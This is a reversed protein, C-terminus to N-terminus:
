NIMHSFIKMFIRTLTFAISLKDPWYYDVKNVMLYVFFFIFIYLV